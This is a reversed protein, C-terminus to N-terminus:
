RGDYVGSLKQMEEHAKSLYRKAKSNGPDITLAKQWAEIAETYEGDSYFGMGVFLYAKTLLESVNYYGPEVTWVKLSFKIAQDFRGANFAAMGARYQQDLAKDGASPPVTETRVPDASVPAEPTARDAERRKTKYGDIEKLIATDAPKYELATELALVAGDYDARNARAAAGARARRVADDITVRCKEAYERALPTDPAIRLAEEFGAMAEPFRRDAYLDISTKLLDALLAQSNQAAKMRQNCVAALSSATSDGPTYSLARNAYFLGEVWSENAVSKGAMSLAHRFKSETLRRTARTNEPDWLLVMEYREAAKGFAGTDYLSDAELMSRELHGREIAAMRTALMDSMEAELKERAAAQRQSVSAGFKVAFSIRHNDGLDESRYAYDLAFQRFRAGFGYTPTVDDVGFRLAFHGDYVVEQGFRFDVPSYRPNALNLTTVLSVNGFGSVVSVGFLINMPDSVDDRDLKLGPEVLNQIAIAERIGKIFSRGSFRQTAMVGADLGVGSASYDGFSHNDIKINFGAALGPTITRGFGLLVRTQANHLDTSLIRNTADRQEIGGVDVRMFSVALTGQNLLPHAYSFAHYVSKSDFLSTRYFLIEKWQLYALGSPNYHQVSPDDALTVAAAGLGSSRADAGLVFPLETGYSQGHAAPAPWLLTLVAAISLEAAFRRKM